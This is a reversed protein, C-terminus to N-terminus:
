GAPIKSMKLVLLLRCHCPLKQLNAEWVCLSSALKSRCFIRHRSTSRITTGVKKSLQTLRVRASQNLTQVVSPAATAALLWHVRPPSAPCTMTIACIRHVPRVVFAEARSCDPLNTCFASSRRLNTCSVTLLSTRDWTEAWGLRM